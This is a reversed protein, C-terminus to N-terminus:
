AEAKEEKIKHTPSDRLCELEKLVSASFDKILGV